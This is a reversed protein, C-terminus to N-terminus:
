YDYIIQYNQSFGLQNHRTLFINFGYKDYKINLVANISKILTSYDLRFSIFDNIKYNIGSNIGYKINFIIDSGFFFAFNDIKYSFAFNFYDNDTIYSSSNIKLNNYYAGVAFKDDFFLIGGLDITFYNENVYKQINFNNYNLRIGLNFINEFKYNAGFGIKIENSMENNNLSLINSSIIFDDIQYNGSLYIDNLESLGFINPIYGIVINNTIFAPNNNIFYLDSDAVGTADSHNSLLFSQILLFIIM